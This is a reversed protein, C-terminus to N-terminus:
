VLWNNNAIKQVLVAEQNLSIKIETALQTIKADHPGDLVFELITSNEKIGKWYGVAKNITFSDFYKSAPEQITKPKLDETFIRYLM